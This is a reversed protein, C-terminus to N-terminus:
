NAFHDHGSFRRDTTEGPAGTQNRRRLGRSVEFSITNANKINPVLLTRSGDKKKRSRDGGRPLARADFDRLLGAVEAYGDNLQPFKDLARLIAWAILIHTPLKEAIRERGPAHKIIRRETSCSKRPHAATFDGDFRRARKWIRSM